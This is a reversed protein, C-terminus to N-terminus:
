VHANPEITNAQQEEGAPATQSKKKRQTSRRKAKVSRKRVVKKRKKKDKDNTTAGEKNEKESEDEGAPAPAPHVPEPEPVVVLDYDHTAVLREMEEYLLICAWADIAAYQRQKDNLQPAEWNSLQQRKSIKQGFINAYLKQLSLDQIGLLSVMDQLDIFLGPTFTERAELMHVDDHWSLGIKRVTKDELLRKVSPTLGIRNLRVLFCTDRTAVQLLAM